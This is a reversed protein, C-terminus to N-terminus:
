STTAFHDDLSPRDKRSCLVLAGNPIPASRTLLPIDTGVNCRITINSSVGHGRRKSIDLLTPKGGSSEQRPVLGLRAAVQPGNEFNKGDGLAAVMATAIIPGVGPVTGVKRCVVSSGYVEQIKDEYGKIQRDLEVLRDYCGAYSTSFGTFRM